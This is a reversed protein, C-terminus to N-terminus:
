PICVVAPLASTNAFVQEIISNFNGDFAAMPTALGKGPDTDWFYEAGSIKQAYNSQTFCCVLLLLIIRKYSTKM